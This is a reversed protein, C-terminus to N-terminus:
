LMLEELRRIREAIPPHTSFFHVWHKAHLPNIIFLHATGPNRETESLMHQQRARALKRLANALSIPDGCMMAGREDAAFERSRSISIQVLVAILPAIMGMLLTGLWYRREESQHLGLILMILQQVKKAILSMAGSISAAITAVLTDFYQVHALEHALVAALEEKDLLKLLGTTVVVKAHKPNRGITFANATHDTIVYLSPMPIQAKETLYAVTGFLRPQDAVDSKQAGYLSLIIQDSFWYFIINLPLVLILGVMLGTHGALKQGGAVLLTSLLVLLFLAKINNTSINEM